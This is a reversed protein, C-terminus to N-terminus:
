SRRATKIRTLEDDRGDFAVNLLNETQEFTINATMM